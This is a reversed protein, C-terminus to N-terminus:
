GGTGYWVHWVRGYWLAACHGPSQQGRPARWAGGTLRRREEETPPSSLLMTCRPLLPPSPLILMTCM